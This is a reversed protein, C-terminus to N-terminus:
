YGVRKGKKMPSVGVGHGHEDCYVVFSGLGSTLRLRYAKDGILGTPVIERAHAKVWPKDHSAKFALPQEPVYPETYVKVYEITGDQRNLVRTRPV